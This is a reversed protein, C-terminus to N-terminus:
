KASQEAKIKKLRKMVDNAGRGFYDHLIKFEAYLRDYVKVNEAIPKYTYPEVHGMKEAAEAITDYGGEAAGAALTSWIASGVAPGQNSASIFMERDLVDAYIQMLMPNKKAIGGCVYIQKTSIGNEEFNDMIIRMGYAASEILARYMEEPKTSLTMGLMLGTLEMDSLCSRNGNWWDLAILGSEGIKLKSAKETLLQHINMKRERAEQEYTEPVCNKVFWDFMDGVCSQGAEYGYLGPLVGDETMGFIGPVAAENESCTIICASTGLVLMVKDPGSIGLSPVGVHADINATAVPTGARLGLKEAMEVTVRGALGGLPMLKGGLKKEYLDGFKPNLACLYDKPLPGESKRWLAKYGAISESRTNEGTLLRVIWDGCEMICDAQEYIEPANELTELFKPTGCEANVRDGYWRIFREGRTKALDTMRDAQETAGHHKWLKVWAHPNSSFEPKFCLPEGSEDVPMSTSATFDVGISIVDESSVGSMKMVAPITEMLVDIFDQPHELAWDAPLPTGDPLSKEMVGHDYMKTHQAIVEGNEVDVLVARGSLTGYDLGIAYKKM